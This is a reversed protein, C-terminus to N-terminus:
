AKELQNELWFSLFTNQIHRSGRHKRAEELM